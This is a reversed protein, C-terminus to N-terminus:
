GPIALKLWGLTLKIIKYKFMKKCQNKANQILKPKDEESM